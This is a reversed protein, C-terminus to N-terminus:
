IRISSLFFILAATRDKSCAAGGGGRLLKQTGSFYNRLISLINEFINQYKKPHYTFVKISIKKEFFFTLWKKQFRRFILYYLSGSESVKVQIM